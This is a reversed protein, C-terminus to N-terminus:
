YGSILVDIAALIAGDHDSLSGIIPGLDRKSIAGGFQTVMVFLADNIHFSPNLRGSPKPAFEPKLVPVVFRTNLDRLLEAQCDVYFGDGEARAYLDFRAM